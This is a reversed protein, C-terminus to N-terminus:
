KDYLLCDKQDIVFWFWFNMDGIKLPTEDIVVRYPMNDSISNELASGFKHVSISIRQLTNNGGPIPHMNKDFIKILNVAGM